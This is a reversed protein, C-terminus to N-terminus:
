IPIAVHCVFQGQKEYFEIMGGLYDVIQRMSKIGYGHLKKEKKITVLNPNDKIVSGCIPNKCTINQFGSKTAFIIEIVETEQNLTCEFANDLM